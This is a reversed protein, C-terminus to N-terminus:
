LMLRHNTFFDLEHLSDWHLVMFVVFLMPTKIRSSISGIDVLIVSNRPVEAKHHPRPTWYQAWSEFRLYGPADLGVHNHLLYVWTWECPVGLVGISGLVRRRRMNPRSRPRVGHWIPTESRRPWESERSADTKSLSGKWSKNSPYLPPAWHPM